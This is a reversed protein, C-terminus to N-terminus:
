FIQGLSLHFRGKDSTTEDVKLPVGYDLRIAGVPTNYRIGVGTGYRYDSVDVDHKSKVLEFDTMDIANANEWVNGGDFFAAGTINIRSLLPIAFRLEANTILLVQGGAPAFDGTEENLVTTPGLSNNEYGRVSNGGGAFFRDEIPVQSSGGFYDAYGARVRVAFVEGSFVPWYWQVSSSLTYFDNDGGLIGGALKVRLFRYTGTRPNLVFDRRDHSVSATAFRSTSREEPAGFALRRIREDSLGLLLDTNRNFRRRSLLQGGVKKVQLEEVTADKELFANLSLLLKIGLVYRQHYEADYRYFVNEFQLKSFDVEDGEFVDYGYETKVRFGRGTGFLNRTGWEAFVRSGVINGVGFGGEVYAAKRERVRVHIEVTRELPDLNEPTIEVVTFLGTEFLNRQTEVLKSLRCIDGSEFAFEKEIVQDKSLINGSIQISRITIQTGPEIDYRITARYDRMTVQERISVALYGRDFYKSRLTYIDSDLFAVNYPDGPRLLLGKALEKPDILSNESFGVSEVVTPKGEEIAIIVDVFRGDATYDLRELVVSAEFFGASHYYGELNAIDRDLTREDLRPKRFINFFSPDKTKMQGKLEKASISNAGEFVIRNIFPSAAESDPEDAASAEGSAAFVLVLALALSIWLCRARLPTRNVPPRPINYSTTNPRESGLIRISEQMFFRGVRIRNAANVARM